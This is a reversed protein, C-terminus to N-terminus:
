CVRARARVTFVQQASRAASLGSVGLGAARSSDQPVCSLLEEGGALASTATDQLQAARGWTQTLPVPLVDTM